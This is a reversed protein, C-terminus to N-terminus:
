TRVAVRYIRTEPPSMLDPEIRHLAEVRYKADTVNMAHDYSDWESIFMIRDAGDEILISMRGCGPLAELAPVAQNRLAHIVNDLRGERILLLTLRQYM